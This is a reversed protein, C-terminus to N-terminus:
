GAFPLSVFAETAILGKAQVRTTPFRAQLESILPAAHGDGWASLLALRPWVTAPRRPDASALERARAPNPATGRIHGAQPMGEAVGRMLQDLSAAMADLLLPLFTPHGVSILRLERENLLRVLTRRQFETLDSAHKLDDCAVLTRSTLWQLWGGLYASDSEFG